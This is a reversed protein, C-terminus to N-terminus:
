PSCSKTYLRHCRSTSFLIRTDRGYVDEAPSEARKKNCNYLYSLSLGNHNFIHLSNKKDNLKVKEIYKNITGLQKKKRKHVSTSFFQGNFCELIFVESDIDIKVYRQCKKCCM